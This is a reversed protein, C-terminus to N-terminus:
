NGIITDTKEGNESASLCNQLVRPHPKEGPTNPAAQSLLSDQVAKEAELLGQVAGLLCNVPNDM